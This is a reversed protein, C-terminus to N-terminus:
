SQPLLFIIRYAQEDVVQSKGIPRLELRLKDPPFGQDIMLNRIAQIRAFVERRVRGNSPDVFGLLHWAATKDAALIGEPLARSPSWVFDNPAFEWSVQPNKGIEALLIEKTGLAKETKEAREPSEAKVATRFELAQEPPLQVRETQLASVRIKERDIASNVEKLQANILELQRKKDINAAHLTALDLQKVEAKLKELDETNTARSAVPSEQANVAKAPPIVPAKQLALFQRERDLAERQRLLANMDVNDLKRLLEDRQSRKEAAAEANADQQWPDQEKQALLGAADFGMIQKIQSMSQLNLSVLGMAFIAVLFLLNLMVNILADLYGPWFNQEEAEDHM